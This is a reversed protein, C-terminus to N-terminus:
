LVYLEKLKDLCRLRSTKAVAATNYGLQLAIEEDSFAEGWLLIMQKCKEGILSLKQYLADIESKLMMKQIISKSEDPLPLENDLLYADHVSAKNTTNKRIQDVCKNSFVQYIYTKLESRGEFKNKIINEIIAIITDSYISVCEDESLKHKRIGDKILYYYKEFLLNEAKRKEQFGGSIGTMIEADPVNKKSTFFM